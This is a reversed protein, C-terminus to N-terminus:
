LAHSSSILRKKKNIFALASNKEPDKPFETPPTTTFSLAVLRLIHTYYM